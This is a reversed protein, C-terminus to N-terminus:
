IELYPEWSIIEYDYDKVKLEKNLQVCIPDKCTESRTMYMMQTMKLQDTHYTCKWIYKLMLTVTQNMKMIKMLIGWSQIVFIAIQLM